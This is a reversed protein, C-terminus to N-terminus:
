LNTVTGLSPIANEDLTYNGAIGNIKTKEIDIVNSIQLVRTEIQAVRVILGGQQEEWGQSLTQFYETISESIQTQVDEWQFGTNLTLHFSVNVKDETVGSIEVVHGIPALGLGEGANQEPDIATQVNDVLTTSPAKFDSSIIVCKVTGGVTLLNNVAAQYIAKVWTKIEEAAELGEVWAQASAPPKFDAPRINGNWARYIKVGGVGPIAKIKTQYDRVNGGFPQYNLSDLYRQRFVETDEEDEGPVLLATVTCTQLGAIYEIPIVAGTYNNGAEGPTECTIEYKGPEDKEKTVSYNLEGISFRTGLALHLSTPTISLELVAPTADEPYIGREKARQILYYRTATDAFTEQYINDLAIYLNQLEVAAPAEGLWLLSGERTDLKRNNEVSKQLMRALITEYTENEYM